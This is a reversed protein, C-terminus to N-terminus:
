KLFVKESNASISDYAALAVETAHVGDEFSAQPKAGLSILECFERIMLEYLNDGFEAWQFGEPGAVDIHPGFADIKLVGRDCVIDMRIDGWTPWTNPRSWSCDISVPMNSRTRCYILANDEVDINRINLGRYAKVWLFEEGTLFRVLDALHVTHDMIAGGGSLRKSGFWGGPYRGHNTCTIARVKGLTGSELKKKADLVSGSYRMVFATQFAVSGKLYANKMMGIEDGRIAIPKECIVHKGSCLADVTQSAHFANESSIIVADIESDNLMEHYDDFFKRVRYIGCKAKGRGTDPDAIAVLGALSSKKAISQIASAYLDAHVHAFSLIGFKM